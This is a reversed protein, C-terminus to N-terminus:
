RPSSFEIVEMLIYAMPAEFVEATVIDTDPTLTAVGDLQTTIEEKVEEATEQAQAIAAEAEAKAAEAEAQAQAIAAEAEPKQM